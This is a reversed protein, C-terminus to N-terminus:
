SSVTTASPKTEAKKAHRAALKAKLIIQMFKCSRDNRLGKPAKAQQSLKRLKRSGLIQMKCKQLLDVEARDGESCVAKSRDLRQQLRETTLDRRKRENTMLHPKQHDSRCCDCYDACPRSTRQSANFRTLRTLRTLRTFLSFLTFRKDRLDGFDRSDRSDRSDRKDKKAGYKDYESLLIM